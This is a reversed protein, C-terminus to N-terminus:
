RALGQKAARSADLNLGSQRPFTVCTVYRYQFFTADRSKAVVTAPHVVFEPLNPKAIM